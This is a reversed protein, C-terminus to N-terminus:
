LYLLENEVITFNPINKLKFLKLTVKEFLNNVMSKNVRHILFYNNHMWIITNVNIKSAVFVPIEITINYSESNLQHFLWERLFHHTFGLRTYSMNNQNDYSLPLASENSIYFLMSLGEVHQVNIGNELFIIPLPQLPINFNSFGTNNDTFNGTKDIYIKQEDHFEIKYGISRNLTIDPDIQNYRSLDLVDVKKTATKFFNFSVTKNADNFSSSMNFSSKFDKIYSGITVDPLLDKLSISNKYLPFDVGKINFNGTLTDKYHSGVILEITNNSANKPIFFSFNVTVNALIISTSGTNSYLNSTKQDGYVVRAYMPKINEADSSATFQINYIGHDSITLRHIYEDARLSSPNEEEQLLEFGIEDEIIEVDENTYFINNTHYQLARSLSLDTQFDGIVSYNIQNFIFQIIEKIYIFPRIENIITPVQQNEIRRGSARRVGASGDTSTFRSGVNVTGSDQTTNAATTSSRRGGTNGSTDSANNNTTNSPQEPKNRFFGGTNHNIFGNYEGFENKDYLGPAYVQTFNILTDPYDKLSTQKAFNFIDEGVDINPWPLSKLPQDFLSIKTSNYYIVADIYSTIRLVLLEANYFKDNRFLIGKVYKNSDVSNNDGVFEFFNIFSRTKPIKFPYSQQKILEDELISNEESFTINLHSLDLKFFETIFITM